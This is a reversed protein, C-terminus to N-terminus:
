RRQLSRRREEADSLDDRPRQKDGHV